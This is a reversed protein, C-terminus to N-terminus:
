SSFKIREHIGYLVASLEPLCLTEEKLYSFTGKMETRMMFEIVGEDREEAHEAFSWFRSRLSAGIVRFRGNMFGPCM